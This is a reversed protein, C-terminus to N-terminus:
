PRKGSLPTVSPDLVKLVEPLLLSAILRHGEVTPHVHDIFLRRATSIDLKERFPGRLDVLPVGRRTAVRAIRSQLEATIRHAQVDLSVARELAAVGETRRQAALLLLGRQYHLLANGPAYGLAEELSFIADALNGAQLHQEAHAQLSDVLRAIPPPNLEAHLIPPILLNPEPLILIVPIGQARAAGVLRELNEEYRGGAVARDEATLARRASRRVTAPSYVFTSRARLRATAEDMAESPNRMRSVLHDAWSYLASRTLLARHLAWIRGAAGQLDSPGRLTENHGSMVVLLDPDLRGVTRAVAAVRESDWGPSALNVVEIEDPTLDLRDAIEERLVAPFADESGVYLGFAASGGLAVIRRTGAPKPYALRAPRFTPLLYVTGDDSRELVRLESGPGTWERPVVWVSDRLVLPFFDERTAEAHRLVAGAAPFGVTARVGLDLLALLVFPTM